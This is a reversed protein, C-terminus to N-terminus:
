WHSKRAGAAYIAASTMAHTATRPIGHEAKESVIDEERDPDEQASHSTQRPSIGVKERALANECRRSDDLLVFFSTPLAVADISHSVVQGHRVSVPVLNDQAPTRARALPSAARLWHRAEETAAPARRDRGLTQAPKLSSLPLTFTAPSLSSLRARAKGLLPFARATM